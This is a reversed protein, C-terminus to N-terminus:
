GSRNFALLKVPSAITYLQRQVTYASQTSMDTSPTPQWDIRGHRRECAAPKDVAHSYPVTVSRQM